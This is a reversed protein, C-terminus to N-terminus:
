LTEADSAFQQSSGRVPHQKGCYKRCGRKRCRGDRGNEFGRSGDSRLRPRRPRIPVTRSVPALGIDGHTQAVFRAVSETAHDPRFRLARSHVAPPRARPSHPRAHRKGWWAGNECTPLSPNTPGVEETYLSATSHAPLRQHHIRAPSPTAFDNAPISEGRPRRQLPGTM